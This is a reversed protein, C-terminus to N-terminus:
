SGDCKAEIPFSVIGSGTGVYGTPGSTVINSFGYGGSLHSQITVTGRFGGSSPDACTIQTAMSDAMWLIGGLADATTSNTVGEGEKPSYSTLQRLDSASFLAVQSMMGTPFAVWVGEATASVSNVALGPLQQSTALVSGTAADRETLPLPTLDQGPHTSVYLFDGGPDTALGGVEAGVGVTLLTGGAAPDLLYLHTTGGVWLGASTLVLPGPVEPLEVTDRTALTGPDLRYVAQVKGSGSGQDTNGATVWLSGGALALNRAFPVPDSKVVTGTALDLRAVLTSGQTAPDKEYIAYVANGDTVLRSAPGELPAVVQVGGAPPSSPSSPSSTPSPSSSPSPSGSPVAPPPTPSGGLKPSATNLLRLGAAAGVGIGAAAVVVTLVSVAVARRARRLTVAPAGRYIPFAQAREDLLRRLRDEASEGPTGPDRPGRRVHDSM